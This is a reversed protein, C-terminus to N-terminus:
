GVLVPIFDTLLPFLLKTCLDAFSHYIRDLCGRLKIQLCYLRSVWPKFRHGVIQRQDLRQDVKLLFNRLKALLKGRSRAM